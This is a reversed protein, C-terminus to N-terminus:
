HITGNAIYSLESIHQILLVVLKVTCLKLHMCAQHLPELVIYWLYDVM